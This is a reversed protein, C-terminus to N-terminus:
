VNKLFVLVLLFLYSSFLCVTQLFFVAGKSPQKFIWILDLIPCVIILYRFFFSLLGVAFAIIKPVNLAWLVFFLHLSVMVFPLVLIFYLFIYHLGPLLLVSLVIILFSSIVILSLCLSTIWTGNNKFAVIERSEQQVMKEKNEELM